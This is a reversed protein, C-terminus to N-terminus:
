LIADRWRAQREESGRGLTSPMTGVAKTQEPQQLLGGSGPYRILMPFKNKTSTPFALTMQYGILGTDQNKSPQRRATDEGPLLPSPVM